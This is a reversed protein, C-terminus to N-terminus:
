LIGSGDIALDPLTASALLGELPVVRSEAYGGQILEIRRDHFAGPRDLMEYDEFRLKFPQPEHAALQPFRAMVNMSGWLM